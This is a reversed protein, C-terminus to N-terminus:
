KTFKPCDRKLPNLKPTNMFEVRQIPDHTDATRRSALSVTQYNALIYYTTPLRDAIVAVASSRTQHQVFHNFEAVVQTWREV